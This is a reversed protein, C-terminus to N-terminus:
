NLKEPILFFQALKLTIKRWKLEGVLIFKGSNNSFLLFSYCPIRPIRM